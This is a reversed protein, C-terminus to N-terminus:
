TQSVPLAALRAFATVLTHAWPWSRPIRLWLRRQGRETLEVGTVPHCQGPTSVAIEFTGRQEPDHVKLLGLKGLCAPM